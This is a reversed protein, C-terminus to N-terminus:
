IGVVGTPLHVGLWWVFVAYILGATLAVTLLSPVIPRRLVVLLLFTMFLVASAVMGLVPALLVLAVLSVYTLAVRALAWRDPWVSVESPGRRHAEIFGVIALAVGAVGLWTPIFAPGPQSDTWYGLSWTGLVAVASLALMVIAPIVDSMRM